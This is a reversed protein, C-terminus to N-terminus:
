STFAAVGTPAQVGLFATLIYNGSAENASLLRQKILLVPDDAVGSAPLSKDDPHNLALLPVPLQAQGFLASVEGRTLPGVILKAGDSVAQQYAKVAGAATGGSDYVKIPPRPARNRAADAYAAFFGERIAM